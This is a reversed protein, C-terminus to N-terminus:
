RRAPGLKVECNAVSDDRDARVRDRKGPGCDVIDQRGNRTKVTDNGPGAMVANGSGGGADIEDNGAGGNLIDTGAGGALCDDGALGDITDDGALGRLSDGRVTGSLVNGIKTGTLVNRCRGSVPVNEITALGEADGLQANVPAILRVFFGEPAEILNDRAVKVAVTDQREGPPIRVKAVAHKFDRPGATGDFTVLDATVGGNQAPKELTVTFLARGGERVTADSVSLQAAEATPALVVLAIAAAALPTRM